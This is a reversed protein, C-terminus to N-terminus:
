KKVLLLTQHQDEQEKKQEKQTVQDALKTPPLYFGKVDVLVGATISAVKDDKHPVPRETDSVGQLPVHAHVMVVNWAAMQHILPAQVVLRVSHDEVVSFQLLPELDEGKVQEAGWVLLPGPEGQLGWLITPVQTVVAIHEVPGHRVATVGVDRYGIPLENPFLSHLRTKVAYLVENCRIFRCQDAPHDTVEIVVM